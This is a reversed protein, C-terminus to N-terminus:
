IALVRASPRRAAIGAMMAAAGNRRTEGEHAAILDWGTVLRALEGHRLLYDPNAPHGHHQQGELFTELMLVGGPAVAARLDPLLDRELFNTALVLAFHGRPVPWTAADAALCSVSLNRARATRALTTLAPLAWDVAIVRYGHEALLL